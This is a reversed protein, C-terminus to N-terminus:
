KDGGITFAAIMVPNEATMLHYKGIEKARSVAVQEISVDSIGSGKILSQIAAMTELSVANVVVRIRSGAAEAKSM